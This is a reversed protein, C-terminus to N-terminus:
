RIIQDDEVNPKFQLTKVNINFINVEFIRRTSPAGQLIHEFGVDAHSYGAQQCENNKPSCDMSLVSRLGDFITLGSVIVIAV